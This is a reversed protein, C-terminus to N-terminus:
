YRQLGYYDQGSYCLLLAFKRNRYKFKKILQQNVKSVDEEPELSRKLDSMKILAFRRVKEITQNISNFSILPLNPLKM